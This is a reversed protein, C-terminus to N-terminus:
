GPHAAPEVARGTSERVTLSPTLAIRRLAHLTGSASKGSLREMCMTVATYGVERKPPAIATLPVGALEAVEDDYAVIALDAPVVLGAEEALSVLTIAEEDPLVLVAHTDTSICDDLYQRLEAHNHGNGPGSRLFEIIPAGPELGLREVARAHGSRLWPATPSSAVALGIRRHGLSALHGIALEAGHSHDSMVSELKGESPTDRSSREVLVVPVDLGSLLECTPSDSDIAHASALLIGDVGSSILRKIQRCEEESSYNSVGLILRVNLAAAAAEAGRIIGPFYYGSTPVILGLTAVPLRRQGDIAAGAQRSSVPIAGGHVRQLLGRDALYALDRRITMGSLGARLAFDKVKLSGRLELERLIKGHREDTIM